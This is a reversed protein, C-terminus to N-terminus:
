KGYDFLELPNSSYTNNCNVCKYIIKKMNSKYMNFIFLIAFIYYVALAIHTINEPMIKLILISWLLGIFIASIVWYIRSARKQFSFIGSSDIAILQKNCNPCTKM